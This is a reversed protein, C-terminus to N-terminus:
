RQKDHQRESSISIQRSLMWRVQVGESVQAARAPHELMARLVRCDTTAPLFGGDGLDIRRDTFDLVSRDIVALVDVIVSAYICGRSSWPSQVLRQLQQALRVVIDSALVVVRRGTTQAITRHSMDISGNVGGFM